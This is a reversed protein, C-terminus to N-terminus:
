LVHKECYDNTLSLYPPDLLILHKKNNSYSDYVHTADFCTFTIYENRLYFTSPSSPCNLLKKINRENPFLGPRINYIKNKSFCPMVSDQKVFNNFVEKDNKFSKAVKNFETEFKLVQEDDTINNHM